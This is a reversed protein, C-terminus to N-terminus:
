RPARVGDCDALARALERLPWRASGDRHRYPQVDRALRAAMDRPIDLLEAAQDITVALPRTTHAFGAGAWGSGKPRPM